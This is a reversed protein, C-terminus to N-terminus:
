PEAQRQLYLNFSAGICLNVKINHAIIRKVCTSVPQAGATVVMGEIGVADDTGGVVVDEGTGGVPVGEGIGDVDV